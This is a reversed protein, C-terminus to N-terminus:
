REQNRMIVASQFPVASSSATFDAQTGTTTTRYQLSFSVTIIPYDSAANRGCAFSCSVWKVQQADTLAAGNSAIIPRGGNDTTCSLTTTLGDIGTFAISSSSIPSAVTGCSVSSDLSRASRIYKTIQSMVYTGNAQVAAISNTKNNSRIASFIIGTVLAGISVFIGVVTLLEVLTFGHQHTLFTIHRKYHMFSM